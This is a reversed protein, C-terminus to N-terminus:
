SRTGARRAVQPLLPRHFWQARGQTLIVDALRWVLVRFLSPCASSRLAWSYGSNTVTCTIVMTPSHAETAQKKCGITFKSYSLGQGFEFLPKGTYYKYTRGPPKAM